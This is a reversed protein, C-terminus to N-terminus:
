IWEKQKGCVKNDHRRQYHNKQWMKKAGCKQLTLQENTDRPTKKTICWAPNDRLKIYGDVVNFRMNADVQDKTNVCPWLIIKGGAKWKGGKPVGGEINLCFARAFVNSNHCRWRTCGLLSCPLVSISEHQVCCQDM